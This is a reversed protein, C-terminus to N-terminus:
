DQQLGIIVTVDDTAVFTPTGRTVLQGFMSTGTLDYRQDSEVRAASPTGAAFWAGSTTSVIAVLKRLDAESPAWAANDAMATFTANFLWLELEADQGADDLIIVDKIVGGGGSTRAASAFTLLGGVADGASYVGATVTPTQSITIGNSVVNATVTGINNTGVPLSRSLFVGAAASTGQIYVTATGSTYAFMHARVTLSGAIGVLHYGNVTTAALTAGTLGDILPVIRWVGDGIDVEVTITGAWTGSIAISITGLGEGAIEVVEDLAGLTGSSLVNYNATRGLLRGIRDTVDVDEGDLTIPVDSQNSAMAVPVSNAMTQQGSDLHMDVANAAGLGLKIVQYHASGVDDTAIVTGSPPTSNEGETITVNDAM